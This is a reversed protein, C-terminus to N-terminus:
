YLFMNSIEDIVNPHTGHKELIKKANEAFQLRKVEAKSDILGQHVFYTIIAQYEVKELAAMEKVDELFEVPMELTVTTTPRKAYDAIMQNLQDKM